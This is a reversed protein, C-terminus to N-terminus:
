PAEKTSSNLTPEVRPRTPLTDRTHLCLGIALGVVPPAAVFLLAALDFDNLM